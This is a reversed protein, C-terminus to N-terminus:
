SSSPYECKPAAAPTTHPNDVPAAESQGMVTVKKVLTQTEERQVVGGDQRAKERLGKRWEGGLNHPNYFYDGSAEITELDFLVAFTLRRVYGFFILTRM